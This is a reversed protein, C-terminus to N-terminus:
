TKVNLLDALNEDELILEDFKAFLMLRKTEIQIEPTVEIEEQSLYELERKVKRGEALDTCASLYLAKRSKLNEIAQLLFDKFESGSYRIIGSTKLCGYVYSGLDEYMGTAKYKEFAKCIIEIRNKALEEQSIEPKEEVNMTDHIAKKAQQRLIDTMYSNFFKSLSAVSVGFAEGYLGRIGRNAALKLEDLTLTKWFIKCDPLLSGILAKIEESPKPSYGGEFTTKSVIEALTLLIESDNADRILKSNFAQIFPTIGPNDNKIVELNSGSQQSYTTLSQM